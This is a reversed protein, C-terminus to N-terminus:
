RQAAQTVTRKDPQQRIQRVTGEEVVQQTSHLATGGGGGTSNVEARSRENMRKREKGEKGEKGERGGVVVVAAAPQVSVVVSQSVSKSPASCVACLTHPPLLLLLRLRWDAASWHTRVLLVVRRDDSCGLKIRM